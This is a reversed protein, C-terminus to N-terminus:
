EEGADPPGWRAGRTFWGAALLAIAPLALVFAYPYGSVVGVVSPPLFPVADTVLTAAVGAGCVIAVRRWPWAVGRSAAVALRGYAAAAAVMAGYPAGTLVAAVLLIDPYPRCDPWALFLLCGTLLAGSVAGLMAITLVDVYARLVTRWKRESCAVM